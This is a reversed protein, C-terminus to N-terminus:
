LKMAQLSSVGGDPRASLPTEVLPHYQCLVRLWDFEPNQFEGPLLFLSMLDTPTM